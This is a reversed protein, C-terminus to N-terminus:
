KVVEWNLRFQFQDSFSVRPLSAVASQSRWSMHLCILRKSSVSGPEVPRRLLCVLGCSLCVSASQSAKSQIAREAAAAM